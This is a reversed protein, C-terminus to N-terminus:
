RQNIKAGTADQPFAPRAATRGECFSSLNEKIVPLDNVTHFDM